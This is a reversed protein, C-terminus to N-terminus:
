GGFFGHAVQQFGLRMTDLQGPENGSNEVCGPRSCVMGLYSITGEQLPKCLHPSDVIEDIELDNEM